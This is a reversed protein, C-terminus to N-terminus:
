EDDQEMDEAGADEEGEEDEKMDDDRPLSELIINLMDELDGESFREECEEILLYIEVASKPRLNLIQLKEARTLQFASFRELFNKVQEVSQTGCPTAKLYETLEFQITRLHESYEIEPNAIQAAKQMSQQEELLSLVEYNSIMAARANKIQM